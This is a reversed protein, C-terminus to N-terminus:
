PRSKEMIRHKMATLDICIEIQRPKKIEVGEFLFGVSLAFLKTM